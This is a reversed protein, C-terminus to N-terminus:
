RAFVSTVFNGNEDEAVTAYNLRDGVCCGTNVVKIDGYHEIGLNHTHGIIVLKYGRRIGEQYAKIIYDHIEGKFRKDRPPIPNDIDQTIKRGLIREFVAWIKLALRVLLKNVPKDFQHGHFILIQKYTFEDFTNIGVQSNLELDHNGRIVVCQQLLGIIEPYTKIITRYTFQLGEFIDGNLVITHGTLRLESIKALVKQFHKKGMNDAPTGDGLHMDSFIALKLKNM